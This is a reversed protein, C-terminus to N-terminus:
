KDIGKCKEMKKDRTDKERGLRRRLGDLHEVIRQLEQESQQLGIKRLVHWNENLVKKSGKMMGLTKWWM